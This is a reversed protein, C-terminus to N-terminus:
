AVGEEKRNAMDDIGVEARAKDVRVRAQPMRVIREYAQALIQQGLRNSQFSVRVVPGQHTGTPGKEVM